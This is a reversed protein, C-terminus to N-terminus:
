ISVSSGTPKLITRSEIPTNAPTFYKPKQMKVNAPKTNADMTDKIHNQNFRTFHVVKIRVLLIDFIFRHCTCFHWFGVIIM